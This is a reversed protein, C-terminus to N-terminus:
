LSNENYYLDEPTYGLPPPILDVVNLESLLSISEEPGCCHAVNGNCLYIAIRQSYPVKAWFHQGTKPTKNM